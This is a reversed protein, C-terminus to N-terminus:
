HVKHAGGLSLVERDLRTFGNRRRIVETNISGIRFFSAPSEGVDYSASLM